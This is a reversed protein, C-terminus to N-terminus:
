RLVLLHHPARLRVRLIAHQRFRRALVIVPRLDGLILLHDEAWAPRAAHGRGELFRLGLRRALGRLRDLMRDNWRRPMARSFPNWAGVFAAQRVRAGALLADVARSRRGLRAVAGAAEYATIRWGRALRPGVPLPAAALARVNPLARDASV